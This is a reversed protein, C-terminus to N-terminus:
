ATPYGIEELKSRIAGPDTQADDYDVHVAKSDIDVDVNRVGPAAGLDSEISHKCHECSIDNATLDLTTMPKEMEPTTHKNDPDSM